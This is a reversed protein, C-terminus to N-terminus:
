ATAMAGPRPAADDAPPALLDAYVRDMRDWAFERLLRDLGDAM